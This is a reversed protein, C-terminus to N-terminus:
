LEQLRVQGPDTQSVPQLPAAKLSQHTVGAAFDLGQTNFRTNGYAVMGDGRPAAHVAAAVFALVCIMGLIKPKAM